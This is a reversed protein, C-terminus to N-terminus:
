PGNLFEFVLETIQYPILLMGFRKSNLDHSLSRVCAAGSEGVCLNEDNMLVFIVGTKIKAEIM